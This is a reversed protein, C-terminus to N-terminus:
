PLMLDLIVLDVDAPDASILELAATGNDVATVRYGEAQLNFTIGKSLHDEDEVLIIHAM